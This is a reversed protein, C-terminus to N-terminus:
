TSTRHVLDPRHGLSRLQQEAGPRLGDAAVPGGPGAAGGPRGAPVSAALSLYRDLKQHRDSEDILAKHFMLHGLVGELSSSSMGSGGGERRPDAARGAPGQHRGINPRMIVRSIGGEGKTVGVVHDAKSLTVKRLSIMVFQATKSARQVRQAVMDANVADLFM